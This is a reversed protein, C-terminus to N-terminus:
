SLMRYNRWILRVDMLVHYYRAYLQDSKLLSSAALQNEGSPYGTTTLVGERLVPLHNHATAYGVFSKQAIFVSAMNKLFRIPSHGMLWHIPFTLIMVGSGALDVLRKVRLYLPNSLRYYPAHTLSDGLSNKNDSGIITNSFPSFFNVSTSGPINRFQAIIDQIRTVGTCCILQKANTKELIEPLATWQGLVNNNDGAIVSIRGMVTESNHFRKLLYKAKDYEKDTGSIIIPGPVDEKESPVILRARLLLMRMLTMVLYASIIGFVLIGRSFRLVPPLFGFVAAIVLASIATSKTLRSQRYGNDYLGSYYSAILFLLTFLPFAIWIIYPSYDTQHKVYEGWLIRVGAFSAFILVADIVPLGIWKLFRGAAAWVARLFIAIQIFTTYIGARSAGYHKKVFISMANYFIRVYNLSGKKTSEGKFHIISSESYYYNKYEQQQIRYSLDIDEGYMFFTEDFGDIELLIQRPAMIFAGALVDVEHNEHESLHGLHYRAFTKSRPFIWSLGTLKYLSTLPGPFARKSEKLFEGAGDVMRIGLACKDQKSKIFAICKSFCDEPVLTDPNLFLIYEGRARALGINNAKAFGENNANWIFHIQEFKNQFYALSGDTSHNDVVIIESAIDKCARLVSYICQELFYKM